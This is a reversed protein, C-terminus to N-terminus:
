QDSKIAAGIDRETRVEDYMGEERSSWRYIRICGKLPRRFLREEGSLFRKEVMGVDAESCVWFEGKLSLCNSKRGNRKVLFPQWFNKLTRELSIPLLGNANSM